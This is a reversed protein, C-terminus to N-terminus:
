WEGGNFWRAVRRPLRKKYTRGTSDTLCVGVCREGRNAFNRLWFDRPFHIAFEQSEALTYDEPRGFVYEKSILFTSKNILIWPIRLMRPNDSMLYVYSSMRVPRRGVNVIRIALDQSQRSVLPTVTIGAAKIIIRLRARDRYVNWFSVGFSGLAVVLALISVVLALEATNAQNM